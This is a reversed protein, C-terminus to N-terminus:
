VDRWAQIQHRLDQVHLRVDDPLHRRRPCVGTDAEPECRGKADDPWCGGLSSKLDGNFVVGKCMM